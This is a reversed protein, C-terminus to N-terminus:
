VIGGNVRLTQGNIWAAEPSVLFAVVDAIDEPRGLRELPPAKASKEIQELSKGTLFLETETPGPAVANITINKGRLEQAMINTFIEVAGKTASYVAYGPKALGITSSSFNIIRGGQEMRKAAERLTNFTGKVNVAFLRDFTQDDTDELKPLSPPMIGATNVLVDIRGFTQITQDFMARVAAPDSVDAQVPIAQGSAVIIENVVNQAEEVRGSYNVVVNYNDRALRKAVAAGIGRSSGTVIAVQKTTSQNM